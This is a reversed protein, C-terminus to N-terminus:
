TCPISTYLTSFDYTDLHKARSYMNTHHVMDLIYMSHILRLIQKKRRGVPRGKLYKIKEDICLEVEGIWCGLIYM